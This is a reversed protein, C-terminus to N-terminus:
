QTLAFQEWSDSWDVPSYGHSPSHADIPPLKEQGHGRSMFRLPIV